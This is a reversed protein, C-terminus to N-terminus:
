HEKKAIHFITQDPDLGKAPDPGEFTGRLPNRTLRCWAPVGMRAAPDDSRVELLAGPPLEAMASSVLPTLSTCAIGPADLVRDPTPQERTM